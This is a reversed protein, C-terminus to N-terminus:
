YRNRLDGSWDVRGGNSWKLFQETTSPENSIPQPLPEMAKAKAEAPTLPKAARDRARQQDAQQQQLSAPDVALRTVNAAAPEFTTIPAAGMVAPRDVDLPEPAFPDHEIIVGNADVVHTDLVARAELVRREHSGAERIRQEIDPGGAFVKTIGDRQDIIYQVQQDVITKMVRDFQATAQEDKRNDVSVNVQTVPPLAVMKAVMQSYFQGRNVASGKIWKVLAAVGGSSQFAKAVVDRFDGNFEAM